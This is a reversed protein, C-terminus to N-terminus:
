PMQAPQGEGTASCLISVTLEFQKGDVLDIYAGGASYATIACQGGKASVFGATKYSQDLNGYANGLDGLEAVVSCQVEVLGVVLGIVLITSILVIETTMIVGCEDSWFKKLM